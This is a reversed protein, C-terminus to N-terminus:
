ADALCKALGKEVDAVNAATQELLRAFSQAARVAPRVFSFRSATGGDAWFEHYEEARSKRDGTDPADSVVRVAAFPIGFRWCTHAIAATEMDITKGGPYLGRVRSVHREDTVFLDGTLMLGCKPRFGDRELEGCIMDRLSLDCHFFMPCGQIQGITSGGGCNVDWYATDTGVVVDGPKLEPDLAGACGVSLVCARRRAYLQATTCIGANVKGIGTQFVDARLKALALNQCIAMEEKLMAALVLVRGRDREDTEDKENM